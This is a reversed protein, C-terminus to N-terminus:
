GFTTSTNLQNRTITLVLLPEKRLLHYCPSKTTNNGMCYLSCKWINSIRIEHKLHILSFPVATSHFRESFYHVHLKCVLENLAKRGLVHVVQSTVQKNTTIHRLGCIQIVVFIFGYRLLWESLDTKRAYKDTETKDSLVPAFWHFFQLTILRSEWNPSHWVACVGHLSDCQMICKRLLKLYTCKIVKQAFYTPTLSSASRFKGYM